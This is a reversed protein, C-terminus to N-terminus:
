RNRRNSCCAFFFFIRKSTWQSLLSGSCRIVSPWRSWCIMLLRSDFATFNVGSCPETESDMRGLLSSTIKETLSVPIPMAGDLSSLM